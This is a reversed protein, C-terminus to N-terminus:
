FNYIRIYLSVLNNSPFSDLHADWKIWMCGDTQVHQHMVRCDIVRCKVQSYNKISVCLIIIKYNFMDKFIYDDPILLDLDSMTPHAKLGLKPPVPLHVKIHTQPWRPRCLTWPLRCLLVRDWFFFFFLELRL